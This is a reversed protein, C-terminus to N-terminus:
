LKNVIGLLTKGKCRLCVKGDIIQIKVSSSRSLDLSGKLIKEVKINIVNMKELNLSPILDIWEISSIKNDTHIDEVIIQLSIITDGPFIQSVKKTLKLNYFIYM